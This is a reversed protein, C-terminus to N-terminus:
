KALIKNIEETFKQLPQAGSIMKGRIKGDPTTKGIVFSPTGNIGAKGALMLDNKVRSDYKGTDLCESFLATNMSLSGAYKKLSPIDLQRQNNFQIDRMEWYKGQDQACYLAESAKFSEKHFSLPLLVVHYLLKGTDVYNKKLEPYTTQAFRGCYPCQMDTFEIMTVKAAMSGEAALGATDVTVRSSRGMAFLDVSNIIREESWGAKDMLNVIEIVENGEPCPEKEQVSEKITMGTSPCIYIDKVRDAINSGAGIIPQISFATCILALSLTIITKSYKFKFIKFM